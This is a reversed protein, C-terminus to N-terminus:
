EAGACLVPKAVLSGRADGTGLQGLENDGWCFVQAGRGDPVRRLACGYGYGFADRGSGLSVHIADDVGAIPHPGLAPTAWSRGMAEDTLGADDSLFCDVRGLADVTCIPSEGVALDRTQTKGQWSVAREPRRQWFAGILSHWCAVEGSADTVCGYMQGLAVQAPERAGSTWPVVAPAGGTTWCYLQRRGVPGAVACASGHAVALSSVGPLAVTAAAVQVVPLSPMNYTSWCRVSADLVACAANAHPDMTVWRVPALPLTPDFALRVPVGIGPGNLSMTGTMGGATVVSGQGLSGWCYVSGDVAVACTHMPGAAVHRIPPLSAVAHPRPIFEPARPDRKPVGVQGVSNDGWCFLTGTSSLACVHSSGVSLQVVDRLFAAQPASLAPPPNAIAPASILYAILGVMVVSVTARM